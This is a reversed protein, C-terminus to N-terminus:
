PAAGGPQGPVGLTCALDGPGVFLCNVGQVNAIGEVCAVAEPTEIQILLWRDRNTREIHETQVVTGFGAEHNGRFLGRVGVPPYKAWQVIQEVESRNPDASGHCRQGWSGDAARSALLLM